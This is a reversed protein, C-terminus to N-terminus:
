ATLTPKAVIGKNPEEPIIFGMIRLGNDPKTNTSRIKMAVEIGERGGSSNTNGEVTVIQNGQVAVVIGAHGTWRPYGDKYTQWIVVDGINAGVRTRSKAHFNEFTKVTSGSFLEIDQGSQEWVLEAFYACWSQGKQWRTKLMLEEFRPSKFGSNGKTEQEDLFSLAKNRIRKQTQNM